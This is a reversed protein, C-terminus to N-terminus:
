QKVAAQQLWELFAGTAPEALTITRYAPDTWGTGETGADYVHKGGYEIACTMQGAMIDGGNDLRQALLILVKAM